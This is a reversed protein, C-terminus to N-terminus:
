ASSRSRSKFASEAHKAKPEGCVCQGFPVNESVMDIEYEDCASSSAAVQHVFSKRLEAASVTSNNGGRVAVLAEATHETRIRGCLCEGFRTAHMNVVFRQCEAKEKQVFTKRLEEGDM